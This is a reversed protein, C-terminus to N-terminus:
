GAAWREVAHILNRLLTGNAPDHRLAAILTTIAGAVDNRAMLEEAAAAPEQVQPLGAAGSVPGPSVRDAIRRALEEVSLEHLIMEQLEDLAQLLMERLQSPGDMRQMGDHLVTLGESVLRLAQRPAGSLHRDSADFILARALHDWTRLSAPNLELARRLDKVAEDYSQVGYEFGTSGYWTGRQLLIESEQAALQDGDAGGIQQRARDLLDIAESLRDGRHPSRVRSLARARGLAVRVIARKTRVQAGAHSAVEIAAEWHRFAERLGDRGRALASKALSLHARVALGVADQLLRARRHGLCLYAPSRTLFEGCHPCDRRHDADARSRALARCDPPLQSLKM